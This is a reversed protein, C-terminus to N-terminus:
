LTVALTEPTLPEALKARVLVAPLAEDMVAVAPVGCVATILVANPEANCAVTFSEPPFGSLPTVTVKVAGPEPALALKAVPM